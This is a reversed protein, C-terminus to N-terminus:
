AEILGLRAEIRVVRHDLRDLRNSLSAYQAELIGIRGKIERLDESHEAQKGQIAKLTEFILLNTIEGRPTGPTDSM